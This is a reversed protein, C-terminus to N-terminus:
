PLATGAACERRGKARRTSIAPRGVHPPWLHPEPPALRQLAARARQCDQIAARIVDGRGPANFSGIVALRYRGRAEEYRALASQLETVM